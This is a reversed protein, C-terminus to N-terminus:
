VLRIRTGVLDHTGTPVGHRAALDVAVLGRRGDEPQVFRVTRGSLDVEDPKGDPLDMLARWRDAMATPDGVAVEVAVVDRVLADEPTPVVDDRDDWFWRDRDALGDLELLVGCDAPHLQIIHAGMFEEVTTTVRVGLDAARRAAARPDPHQVSLCYGGAGGVGQLYGHAPHDPTAPAVLELFADPGVPITDDLLGVDDLEPDAFGPGLGLAERVAQGDRQIDTTALVVQRLQAWNDGGM